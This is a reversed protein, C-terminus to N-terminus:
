MDGAQMAWNKPDATLKEVDPNAWVAAPVAPLWALALALRIWLRKGMNTNMAHEELTMCKDECAAHVFFRGLSRRARRNETERRSQVFDIQDTCNTIIVKYDKTPCGAIHVQLM